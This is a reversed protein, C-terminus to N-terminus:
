VSKSPCGHAVVESEDEDQKQHRQDQQQDRHDQPALRASRACGSAARGGEFPLRLLASSGRASARDADAPARGDIRADPHYSVNGLTIGSADAFDQPSLEGDALVARM